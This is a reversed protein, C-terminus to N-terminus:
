RSKKPSDGPGSEGSPPNTNANEFEEAQITEESNFLLENYRRLDVRAPIRNLHQDKLVLPAPKVPDNKTTKVKLLKEVREIGITGLKLLDGIAQELKDEGYITGLALLKAVEVRLSRGNHRLCKLYQGLSPGYSELLTIQAFIHASKGQPKIEILGKEHEPKTFPVQNKIYCREHRTIFQDNYYVRVWDADIRVTVVLGVLTWPVSYQNTEYILHYDPRVVKSFVEDTEYSEPNAKLMRPKEINDFVLKPVKRTAEHERLNATNDRWDSAQNCIDSFNTFKREPWFNYRVYKVGDEVRGKENGRAKNCAYPSFRHHGAYAIFRSNFRVLKGMRESVATPLNDYWIEETVLAGFYRVANEHCRIFEEFRESRTFEIYILRSYCLVMVFCHIKVGDDFVDGFEGWDVQATQGVAFDIKFFGEKNRTLRLNDRVDRVLSKVTSYGGEYGKDRIRQLIVVASVSADRALVERIFEQYPDLISQRPVSAVNLAVGRRHIVREVSKRNVGVKRAIARIKESKTFFLQLIEAQLEPTLM